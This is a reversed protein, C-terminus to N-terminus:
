TFHARIAAIGRMTARLRAEDMPLAQSSVKAIVIQNVADVFLNQGHVGVAFMMPVRGRLLYWKNRYHMPMGPFYSTFEGEDWAQPDGNGVIDDIWSQPIISISERAGGQVLLQGLLALDRTTACMGGAARPAGLRDVTIYASRSAGLPKWLLEALLDSYRQGTAREIAWGLLDTNPSVYHFCGLHRGDSEKFSALFRRMDSPIDGPALPNWNTAKRYEVIPGTTALYNEDFLIGARMDLLGRITAGRYATEGVEPVLRTVEDELKLAGRDVLIGALLGLISKSVSMLIHPTHETMGNMYSEHVIRGRHLIVIGDTDTETLFAELGLEGREDDIRLGKLDTPALPLAWVHESSNSIEATPVIERVHQFGWKNFPPTRWNALTVQASPDSPFGRMLEYDTM